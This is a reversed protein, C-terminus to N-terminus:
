VASTARRRPYSTVRTATFPLPDFAIRPNLQPAKFVPRGWLVDRVDGRKPTAAGMADALPSSPKHPYHTM